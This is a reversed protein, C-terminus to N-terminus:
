LIKSHQRDYDEDSMNELDNIQDRLEDKYYSVELAEQYRDSVDEHDEPTLRPIHCNSLGEVLEKIKESRTM